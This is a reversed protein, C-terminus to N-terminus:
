EGGTARKVFKDANFKENGAEFMEVFDNLLALITRTAELTHTGGFNRFIDAVAIYHKQSFKSSM